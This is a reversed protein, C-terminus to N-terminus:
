RNGEGDQKCIEEIRVKGIMEECIYKGSIRYTGDVIEGSASGHLIRGAVMDNQLYSEASQKVWSFENVDFSSDYECKNIHLTEKILSVPLEFGGPLTLKKQTYIKVCSMDSIGSDKYLKVINKGIQISYRVNIEKLATRKVCSSLSVAALDRNTLASIEAEAREARVSLGCDTYGSVLIQGTRVAHGVKCLPSGKTVTIASVIGDRAAVISNAAYDPSTEKPIVRERVSIVAVCGYTNVGAWQLADIEALLTNKVYESRVHRRTAGFRIGCKEAADMITVTDVFNNGEIRVFLVRSPLYVVLFLWIIIGVLLVPRKWLKRGNYFIGQKGVIKISDGRRKVLEILKSYDSGSVSVCVCLDDIYRIDRLSVGRENSETFFGSISASTVEVVFVNWSLM